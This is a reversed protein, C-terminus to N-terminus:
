QYDNFYARPAAPASKSKARRRDRGARRDRDGAQNADLAMTAYPDRRNDSSRRDDHYRYRCQCQQERCGAVPLEPADAELFRTGALKEVAECAILGPHISVAAFEHESPASEEAPTRGAATRRWHWYLFPAGVGVTTGVTLWVMATM